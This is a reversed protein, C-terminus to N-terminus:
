RQVNYSCQWKWVYRPAFYFSVMTTTWMFFCVATRKEHALAFTIGFGTAMIIVLMVMKMPVRGPEQTCWMDDDDCVLISEM